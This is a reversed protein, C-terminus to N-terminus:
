TSDKFLFMGFASACFVVGLLLMNLVWMIKLDLNSVQVSVADSNDVNEQVSQSTFAQYIIEDIDVIFEVALTNLVLTEEDASGLIYRGGIWCLAVALTMKPLAVM